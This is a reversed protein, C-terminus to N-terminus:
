LRIANYQELILNLKLKKTEVPFVASELDFYFCKKTLIDIWFQLLRHLFQLLQVKKNLM